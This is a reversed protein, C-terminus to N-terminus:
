LKSSYRVSAPCGAIMQVYRILSADRCFFTDLAAQWLESGQFSPSVATVKTVYDEPKHQETGAIGKRLDYTAAPTCLLFCDANLDELAIPLMARAETLTAAIYRSDRRKMVFSQYAKAHQYDDYAQRQEDNFKSEAMKKGLSTVLEAAGTEVLQQWAEEVQQKAEDLQLQTLQHVLSQAAEQNEEWFVGNYALYETYPSYRLRDGFVQSLVTAQGVDSYDDPEYRIDQKNYVDPPVYGSQLRVRKYFRQASCWISALETNSLPPVCQKTKDLFLRYAHDTDGYRKLVIRAFQSM